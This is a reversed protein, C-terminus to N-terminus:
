ETPDDGIRYGTTDDGIRIREIRGMHLMERIDAVECGVVSLIDLASPHKARGNVFSQIREQVATLM